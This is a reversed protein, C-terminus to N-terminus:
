LQGALRHYNGDYEYPLLCGQKLIFLSDCLPIEQIDHTTLLITGGQKKFERLYNAIREKCILDLAASPEDLLLIKPRHAAACGISLRKKMGGSMHSVRTKLFEPIGLIALLGNELDEMIEARSRYWLRLNDMASLEEILPTGQPVYGVCAAHRRRDKFLDTGDYLFEGSGGPLTGALVSLMTSKGSGNQGLIGVCTGTEAQFSIYNLIRKKGYYGSLNNIEIM